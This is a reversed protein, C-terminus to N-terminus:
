EGRFVHEVEWKDRPQAHLTLFLKAILDPDFNSGPKITGAVTVTAVHINDPALEKAMAFTLGRLASKGATLSSVGAGYEPYLALGGGTFLISGRGKAKMAPYVHQACALAGTACLALDWNFTMPDISMAPAEHWRAANYVLVDAAGFEREIQHFVTKVAALDCLDAAYGKAVGGSAEIDKALVDLEGQRRALAAVVFGDKAFRKAIATGLGPGVGAVICLKNTDMFGSGEM